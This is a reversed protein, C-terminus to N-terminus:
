LWRNFEGAVHVTKAKADPYAFSVTPGNAAPAGGGSGVTLASNEIDNVSKRAPNKPDLKWEGNIVFKYAYVGPKLSLTKSWNGADDKTMPLIKWNSFEGAVEVTKASPDSYTLTASVEDNAAQTSLAAFAGVLLGFILAVRMMVGTAARG